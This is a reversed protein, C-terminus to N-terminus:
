FFFTVDFVNKVSIEFANKYNSCSWYIKIEGKMELQKLTLNEGSRQNQEFKKTRFKIKTQFNLGKRM